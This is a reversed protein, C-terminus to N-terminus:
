MDGMRQYLWARALTWLRDAARPTIGLTDAAQHHTLGTFFRVKVLHAAESEAQAQAHLTRRSRHHPLSPLPCQDRRGTATSAVCALLDRLFRDGTAVALSRRDYHVAINLEGAYTVAGVAVRTFPRVPPFFEIQALMVNGAMIRGRRRPLPTEDLQVGLNSLVATSMCRRGALMRRMVPPCRCLWKTVWVFILGLRFRKILWTDRM